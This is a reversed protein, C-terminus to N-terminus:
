GIFYNDLSPAKLLTPKDVGKKKAYKLVEKLTKGKAVLKDNNPTLALWGTKHKKLIKSLDTM